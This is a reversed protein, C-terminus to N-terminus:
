DPANLLDRYGSESLWHARALHSEYCRRASDHATGPDIGLIISCVEEWAAGEAAADLLRLYTVIQTRDYETVHPDSPAIDAIRPPTTMSM